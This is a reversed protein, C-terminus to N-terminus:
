AQRPKRLDFRRGHNDSAIEYVKWGEERYEELADADYTIHYDYQDPNECDLYEIVIYPGNDYESGTNGMGVIRFPRTENNLDGISVEAARVKTQAAM